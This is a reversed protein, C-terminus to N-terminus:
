KSLTRERFRRSANGVSVIAVIPLMLLVMIIFGIWEGFAWLHHCLKDFKAM